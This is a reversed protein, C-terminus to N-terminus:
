PRSRPVAPDKVNGPTASLVPEMPAACDECSIPDGRMAMPRLAEVVVGCGTCAYEYFPM